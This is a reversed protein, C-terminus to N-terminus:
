SLLLAAAVNRGETVLLNYTRCAASTAMVEVGIGQNVLNAYLAPEPFKIEAGTGLIVIQPTLNALATFHESTIDEFRQPPWDDIIQNSTAIVSNSYRQENILLEGPEYSRITYNNSNDALTFKM